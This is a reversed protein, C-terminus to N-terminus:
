RKEVTHLSESKAISLLLKCSARLGDDIRRLTSSFMNDLKPRRRLEDRLLQFYKLDQDKKDPHCKKLHNELKSPKM